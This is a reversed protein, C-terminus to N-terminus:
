GFEDLVEECPIVQEMARSLRRNEHSRV